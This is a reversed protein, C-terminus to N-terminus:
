DFGSNFIRIDVFGPGGVFLIDRAADRYNGRAAADVILEWQTAGIKRARDFGYWAMTTADGPVLPGYNRWTWDTDRYDADHFTLTVRARECDPLEFRLVGRDFESAAIGRELDAPLSDGPLAHANNIRTCNGALADIKLTIMDAGGVGRSVDPMAANFSAVDAEIADPTGSADADGGNPALNEISTSAGDSDEDPVQTYEWLGGPTGALLRSPDHPDLALATAADAPLGISFSNWTLGGDTSKYVGSPNTPSGGIGAYVIDSDAPDVLLARVDQGAIGVSIDTWNAGADISKLVRGVFYGDVPQYAGAYLVDSDNPDIALALVNWHSSGAGGLRPLGNSSHVWTAGADISKFVGNDVTPEPCSPDGNSSLSVGAYLTNPADGDVVLPVVIQPTSCLGIAFTSPLGNESPSWSAGADTSKYIRAALYTGTNFAPRGSGAVYLTNLPGSTCPGSVPPAACSRPDLAVSRVNGIFRTGATFTAPLGNDIANWSAGGDVSKYLGGDTNALTTAEDQPRSSGVAYVHVGGPLSATTPDIALARIQTARAGSNSYSWSAGDDSSRQIAPAPTFADGYGVLIEDGDTPHLAIARVNSGILGQNVPVFNAGADDSRFAGGFYTGVWVRDDGPFGPALAISATVATRAGDATLGNALTTWSACGTTSRYVGRAGAVWLHDPNGAEVVVRGGHAIGADCNSWSAGGDNSVFMTASTMFYVRDPNSPASELDGDLYTLFGIDGPLDATPTFTAGADDSRWVVATEGAPVGDFAVYLRTASAYEARVRPASTPLGAALPTSVTTGADNSLRLGSQASLLVQQGDGDRLSLDLLFDGSALTLATPQWDGGATSRFVRQQDAALFAVSASTAAELAYPFRYDLGAEFRSWGAGGDTTRFVGGRGAVLLTDAAAADTVILAADGGQPGTTTWVGPGCWAPGALLALAAAISTTHKM